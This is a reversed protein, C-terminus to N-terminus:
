STVQRGILNYLGIAAIAGLAAWLLTAVSIAGLLIGGATAFGVILSGAAGSAVNRAIARGSEIQLAITALWGLLAGSFLLILLGM